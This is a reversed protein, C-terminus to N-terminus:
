KKEVKSIVPNVLKIAAQVPGLEVSIATVGDLLMGVAVSSTAVVAVVAAGVAVVSSGTAFRM